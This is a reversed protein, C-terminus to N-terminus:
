DMSREFQRVQDGNAVGVFGLSARDGFAVPRPEHPVVTFQDALDFGDANRRWGNSMMFNSASKQLRANVRQNFLRDRASEVFGILHDAERFRLIQNQLDAM